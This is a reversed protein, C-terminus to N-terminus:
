TPSLFICEWSGHHLMITRDGCDSLIATCKKRLSAIILTMLFEPLCTTSSCDLLHYCTVSLLSYLLRRLLLLCDNSIWDLLCSTNLFNYQYSVPSENLFQCKFVAIRDMLTANPLHSDFALYPETETHKRYLTPTTSPIIAEGLIGM